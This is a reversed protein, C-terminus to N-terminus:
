GKWGPLLAAVALAMLLGLLREVGEKAAGNPLLADVCSALLALAALRRVAGFLEEM